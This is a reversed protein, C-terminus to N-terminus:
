GAEPIDRQGVVKQISRALIQGRFSNLFENEAHFLTESGQIGPAYVDSLFDLVEEDPLEGRSVLDCWHTVVRRVAESIERQKLLDQWVHRLGPGIDPDRLNGLLFASGNDSSAIALVAGLTKADQVKTKLWARLAELVVSARRDILTSFADILAQNDVSSLDSTRWLRTLAIDPREVGLRGGCVAAVLNRQAPSSAWNYLMSRTFAGTQTDLAAETLVEVALDIRTETLGTSLTRIITSDNRSLGLSLLTRAARQADENAITRDAAVSTAWEVITTKETSFEDMLNQLIATPLGHKARDHFVGTLSLELSAAERRETSTPGGLVDAPGREIGFRDLLADAARLVSDLRGGDLLAASWIMARAELRSGQWTKGKLALLDAIHDKWGTYEELVKAPTPDKADSITTALRIAEAGTPRADWTPQYESSELSSLCEPRNRGLYRAVVQKADPPTVDVMYPKLAEDAPLLRERAPLLVVLRRGSTRMRTGYEVLRRCFAASRQQAPGSSLDLIFRRGQEPLLEANPTTWQAELEYIEPSTAMFSGQAM